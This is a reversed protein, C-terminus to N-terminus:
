LHFSPGDFCGLEELAAWSRWRIGLSGVTVTYKSWVEELGRSEAAAAAAARGGRGWGGRGGGSRGGGGSYATWAVATSERWGTLSQWLSGWDRFARHLVPPPLVPPQAAEDGLPTAISEAVLAIFWCLKDFLIFPWLQLFIYIAFVNWYSPLIEYSLGAAVTRCVQIFHPMSRWPDVFWSSTGLDRFSPMLGKKHNHVVWEM